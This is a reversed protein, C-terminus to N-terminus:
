ADDNELLQCYKDLWVTEAKLLQIEHDLLLWEAYPKGYTQEPDHNDLRQQLDHILTSINKQWQHILRIREKVPIYAALGVFVSCAYASRSFEAEETLLKRYMRKGLSTIKYITAVPYNGKKEERSKLLGENALRALSRYITAPSIPLYESIGWSKLKQRLSYGSLEEEMLCFLAILTTRRAELEPNRKKM